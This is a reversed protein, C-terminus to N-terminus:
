PKVPREEYADVLERIHRPFIAAYSNPWQTKHRLMAEVIPRMVAVTSDYRDRQAVVLKYEAQASDREQRLTKASRAVTAAWGPLDVLQVCWGDENGHGCCTDCATEPDGDDEARGFCVAPAVGCHDCTPVLARLREVELTLNRREEALDNLEIARARIVRDHEAVTSKLTGVEAVLKARQDQWGKVEDHFPTENTLRVCTQLLEGIRRQAAELQDAMSTLLQRDLRAQTERGFSSHLNCGRTPNHVRSFEGNCRCTPAERADTILKASLEADYKPLEAM